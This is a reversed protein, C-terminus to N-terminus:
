PTGREPAPVTRTSGASASMSEPHQSRVAPMVVFWVFAALVALSVLVLAIFFPVRWRSPIVPPREPKPATARDFAAQVTDFVSM